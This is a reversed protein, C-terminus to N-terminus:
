RLYIGIGIIGLVGAILLPNITSTQVGKKKLIIVYPSVSEQIYGEQDVKFISSVKATNSLNGGLLYAKGNEIKYVVDGHTNTYSGSRPKILVDGIKLQLQDTKDISYAGWTPNKGQMIDEIYLRHAAKKPFGQNKLIYSVFASSWPTGSPSWDDGFNVYDWYKKLTDFVLPDTEKKGQWNELESEGLTSVSKHPGKVGTLTDEFEFLINTAM